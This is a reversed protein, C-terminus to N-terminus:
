NKEKLLGKEQATALISAYDGDSVTEAEHAARLGEGTGDKKYIFLMTDKETEFQENKYEEFVWFPRETDGVKISVAINDGYTGLYHGVSISRIEKNEVFSSRYRAFFARVIDATQERTLGEPVVLDNEFGEGSDYKKGRIIEYLAPVDGDTIAGDVYAKGLTTITKDSSYLYINIARGRSTIYVGGLNISVADDTYNVGTPCFRIWVVNYNKYDGCHATVKVNQIEKKHLGGCYEDFFAQKIDYVQEASLRGVPYGENYDTNCGVAAFVASFCCIALILSILIKKM